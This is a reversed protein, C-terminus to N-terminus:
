LGALWNQAQALWHPPLPGAVPPVGLLFVRNPLTGLAQALELVQSVGLGHSSAPREAALLGPRWPTFLPETNPTDPALSDVIVLTQGPAAPSLALEPPPAPWHVFRAQPLLPRLAEFLELGPTDHPNLRNGVGAILLHPRPAQEAVGTM